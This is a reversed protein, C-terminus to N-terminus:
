PRAKQGGKKSNGSKTIYQVLVVAKRGTGRIGEAEKRSVESNITRFFLKINIIYHNATCHRPGRPPLYM